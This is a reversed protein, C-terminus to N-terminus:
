GDWTGLPFLRTRTRRSRVPCLSRRAVGAELLQRVTDTAGRSAAEKLMLQAEFSQFNSNEQQLAEVLGDSGDIWLKTEAFTDVANELETIVAPMGVLSGVHDEVKKERVDISIPIVYTPYDALSATYSSDMSYFDAVVFKKALKQVESADVSDTHKGSSVM